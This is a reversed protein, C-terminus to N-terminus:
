FTQSTEKVVINSSGRGREVSSVGLIQELKEQKKRSGGSPSM